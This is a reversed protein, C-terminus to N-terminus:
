KSYLQDIYGSRDLEQVFSSDFFSEPSVEKAKPNNSALHELVAKIGNISVYPKRQYENAYWRYGVEVVEPSDVKMYRRMIEMSKNQQTKFYHIGEVIAKIFQRVTDQHDKVFSRTTVIETTLYEIGLTKVDLLVRLGLKEAAWANDASM